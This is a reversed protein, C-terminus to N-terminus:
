RTAANTDTLTHPNKTTIECKMFKLIQKTMQNTRCNGREQRVDDDIQEMLLDDHSTITETM